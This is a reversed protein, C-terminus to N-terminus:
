KESPLKVQRYSLPLKFSESLFSLYADGDPGLPTRGVAVLRVKRTAHPEHFWAYELLQGIALRLVRRTSYDSKVEFLIWEADTKVTVDVYNEECVITAAPYEKALEKCLVARMLDHEPSCERGESGNRFYNNQQPPITVGKRSRQQNGVVPLAFNRRPRILQYRNWRMMPDDAEAFKDHEFWEVDEPRFRVNFIYPAWDANGLGSRDGNVDDVEKLIREYWGREKYVELIANSQADDLLEIHRIRAVYRRGRPDLTFLVVEGARERRKLRSKRGKNVGQLFGYQWGGIQWEFRFLWEEHGYGHQSYFTDGSERAEGTPHQWNSDNYCIRTIYTM